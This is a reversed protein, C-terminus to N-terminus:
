TGDGAFLTRTGMAASSEGGENLAFNLQNWRDKVPIQDGNVSNGVIWFNVTGSGEEPATWTLM